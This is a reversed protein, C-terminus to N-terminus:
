LLRGSEVMDASISEGPLLTADGSVLIKGQYDALTFVSRGEGPVHIQSPLTAGQAQSNGKWGPGRGSGQGMEPGNLGANGAGVHFLGLSSVQDWSGREAYWSELIGAASESASERLYTNFRNRSTILMILVSVVATTVAIAVFALTLKTYLSRNM